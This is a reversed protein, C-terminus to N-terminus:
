PVTCGKCRFDDFTATMSGIPIERGRIGIKVLPFNPPSFYPAGLEAVKVTVPTGGDMTLTFTTTGRDFEIKFTHDQM